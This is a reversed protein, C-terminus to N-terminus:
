GRTKIASNHCTIFKTEKFENQLLAALPEIVVDETAFHGGELMTKGLAAANLMQHHKAEGTIFADAGNLFAFEGFEGGAGGCVAVKKIKNKGDAYRVSFGLAKSINDALEDASIAKELEGVTIAFGDNLFLKQPYKFCLAEALCDNVGKGAIDLNTHASIVSIGSKILRAYISDFSISKLGDFIVPHHTIILQAGASKALEIVENTCDLAVLAKTVPSNMDGILLGVNDFDQATSFPCLKDLYSYIDKVTM